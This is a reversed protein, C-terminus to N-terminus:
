LAKWSENEVTGDCSDNKRMNDEPTLYQLNCYHQLGILEEETKVSSCPIIHDIHYKFNPDYSGYNKIIKRIMTIKM